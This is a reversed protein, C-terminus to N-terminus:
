STSGRGRWRSTGRRGNKRKETESEPEGCCRSWQVMRMVDADAAAVVGLPPQANAEGRRKKQRARRWTTEGSLRTGAAWNVIGNCM